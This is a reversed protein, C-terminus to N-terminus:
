CGSGSKVLKVNRPNRKNQRPYTKSIRAVELDITIKKDEILSVILAFTCEQNRTEYGFKALIALFCHYIVYFLSSSCWDTFGGKQFYLTAKLNREAKALHDRAKELNSNVKVLGRHKKGEQLERKAKNLCWEVKNKAHSM